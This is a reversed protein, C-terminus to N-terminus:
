QPRKPSRSQRRRRSIPSVVRDDSGDDHQLGDLAAQLVGRTGELVERTVLLDRGQPPSPAAGPVSQAEDPQCRRGVVRGPRRARPAEAPGRGFRTAVFYLAMAESPSPAQMQPLRSAGDAYQVQASLQTLLAALEAANSQPVATL